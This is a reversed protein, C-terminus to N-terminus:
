PCLSWCCQINCFSFFIFSQFHRSSELCPLWISERPPLLTKPSVPSYPVILLSIVLLYLHLGPSLSYLYTKWINCFSTRTIIGWSFEECSLSPHGQIQTNWWEEAVARCRFSCVTLPVGLKSVSGRVCLNIEFVCHWDTRGERLKKILSLHVKNNWTRHFKM